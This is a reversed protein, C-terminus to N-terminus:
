TSTEDRLTATAYHDDDFIIVVNTLPNDDRLGNDVKKLRPPTPYTNFIDNICKHVAYVDSEMIGWLTPGLLPNENVPLGIYKHSIYLVSSAIEKSTYYLCFPHNYTQSIILSAMRILIIKKKETIIIDSSNELFDVVHIHPLDVDFDFCIKEALVKEKNIIIKIWKTFEDADYFNNDRRIVRACAVAVYDIIRPHETTKTALFTAAAGIDHQTYDKFSCRMFFRHFYTTATAITQHKLRLWVSINKIFQIGDSRLKNEEEMSIGDCRSPTFKGYQNKDFKWQSKSIDNM